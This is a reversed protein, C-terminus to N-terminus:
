PWAATNSSNRAECLLLQIHTALQNQRQQECRDPTTGWVAAKVDVRTSDNSSSVIAGAQLKIPAPPQGKPPAGPLVVSAEQAAHTYATAGRLCVRFATGCESYQLAQQAAHVSAAAIIILFCALCGLAPMSACM